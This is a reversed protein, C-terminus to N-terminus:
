VEGCQQTIQLRRFADRATRVLVIAAAGDDGKGRMAPLHKMAITLPAFLPKGHGHFRVQAPILKCEEHLSALEHLPEGLM